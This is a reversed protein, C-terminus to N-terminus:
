PLFLLVGFVSGLHGSRPAMTQCVRVSPVNNSRKIDPSLKMRPAQIRKGEVLGVWLGGRSPQFGCVRPRTSADSEPLRCNSSPAPAWGNRKAEDVCFCLEYDDGGAPARRLIEGDAGHLTELVKDMLLASADIEAGAMM